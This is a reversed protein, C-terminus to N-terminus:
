GALGAMPSKRAYPLHHGMFFAETLPIPQFIVMQFSLLIDLGLSNVNMVKIVRAKPIAKTPSARAAERNGWNTFVVV